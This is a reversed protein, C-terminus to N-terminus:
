PTEQEETFRRIRELDNPQLSVFRIGMGFEHTDPVNVVEGECHVPREDGPLTFVLHVREGVPHPIARDFYIGGESIDRSSHLSFGRGDRVEVAISVNIRVSRRREMSTDSM